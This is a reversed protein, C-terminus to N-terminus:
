PILNTLQRGEGRRGAQVAGQKRGGSKGCMAKSQARVSARRNWNTRKTGRQQAGKAQRSASGSNCQRAPACKLLLVIVQTAWM